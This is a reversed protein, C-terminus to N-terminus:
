KATQVYYNKWLHPNLGEVHVWAVNNMNDFMLSMSIRLLWITLLIVHLWLTLYQQFKTTHLVDSWAQYDLDSYSSLKLLSNSCKNKTTTKQAKSISCLLPKFERETRFLFPCQCVVGLGFVAVLLGGLAWCLSHM